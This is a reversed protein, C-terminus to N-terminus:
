LRVFTVHGDQGRGAGGRQPVLELGKKCTEMGVITANQDM